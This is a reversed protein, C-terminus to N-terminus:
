PETIMAPTKAKRTAGNKALSIRSNGGMTVPVTMVMMPMTRSDTAARSAPPPPALWNVSGGVKPARRFRARAPKVSSIMRAM